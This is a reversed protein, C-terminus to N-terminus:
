VLQQGGFSKETKGITNNQQASGANCGYTFVDAFLLAFVRTVCEVIRLPFRAESLTAAM